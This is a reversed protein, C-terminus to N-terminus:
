KETGGSSTDSVGCQVMDKLERWVYKPELNPQYTKLIPEVSSEDFAQCTGPTFCGHFAEFDKRDPLLRFLFLLLRRCKSCKGCNYPTADGGGSGPGHRRANNEWCVRVHQSILAHYVPHDLLRKLKEVRTADGHHEITLTSSSYLPDTNYGSGRVQDPQEQFFQKPNSSPFIYRHCDVMGHVVSFAAAGHLHHLWGVQAPLNLDPLVQRINTTVFVVPKQVALGIERIHQKVLSSLNHNTVSVDLGTIFILGDIEDERDMLTHFSDVGGSFSSLCFAGGKGTDDDVHRPRFPLQFKLGLRTLNEALVQDVPESSTLSLGNVKAVPTFLAVVPDICDRHLRVMRPDTSEYTFRVVVSRNKYSVKWALQNEAPPSPLTSLHIM